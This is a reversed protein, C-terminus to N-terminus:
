NRPTKGASSRAALQQQLSDVMRALQEVRQNAQQAAVQASQATTNAVAASERAEYAKADVATVRTNVAAFKDKTDDDARASLSLSSAALVVAAVAPLSAFRNKVQPM